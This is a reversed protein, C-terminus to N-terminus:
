GRGTRVEVWASDVTGVEVRDVTDVKVWDRDMRGVEAGVM